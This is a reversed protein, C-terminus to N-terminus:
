LELIDAHVLQFYSRCLLMTRFHNVMVSRADTIDEYDEVMEISIIGANSVLHDVEFEDVIM